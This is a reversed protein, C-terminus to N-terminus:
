GLPVPFAAKAMEERFKKRLGRHPPYAHFVGVDDYARVESHARNDPVPKHETRFTFHITGETADLPVDRVLVAAVTASVKGQLVDAPASM